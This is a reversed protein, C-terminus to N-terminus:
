LRRFWGTLSWRESKSPLVAHPVLDSKFLVLRGWLPEILRVQQNFHISLQGGDDIKWAPNLYLIFSIVRSGQFSNKQPGQDIHEEYGASHGYRAFHLEVDTIGLWLDRNLQTQIKKILPAMFEPLPDLWHISDGRIQSSLQRQSGQGIAAPVFQKENWLRHAESHLKHLIEPPVLADAMAWHEEVLQNILQEPLSFTAVPDPSQM